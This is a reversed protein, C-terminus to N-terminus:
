EDNGGSSPEDDWSSDGSNGCGDSDKDDNTMFNATPSPNSGGTSKLASESELRIRYVM